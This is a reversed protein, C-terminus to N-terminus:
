LVMWHTPEQTLVKSLSLIPNWGQQSDHTHATSEDKDDHTSNLLGRGEWRPPCGHVTSTRSPGVPTIDCGPHHSMLAGVRATPATDHQPTTTLGLSAHSLTLYANSGVCVRSRDMADDGEASDFYLVDGITAHMARESTSVLEDLETYISM